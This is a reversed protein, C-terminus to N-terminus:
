NNLSIYFDETLRRYEDTYTSDKHRITLTTIKPMVPESVRRFEMMTRRPAEGEKTSIDMQRVLWLREFAERRFMAAVDTPLIVSLRGGEVLLREAVAIIDGFKLHTAHRATARAENPSETTEVFYPPNSVIHDFQQETYLERVDCQEATLRESWPSLEFNHRAQSVADADVDIGLIGAEASRQAVMLAILGSGTGLDLIRRSASVDAWAGLLVGDTGVKMACLADDVRFRKFEFM